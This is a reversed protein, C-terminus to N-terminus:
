KTKKFLQGVSQSIDKIARSLFSRTSEIDQSRKRSQKEDKEKQEAKAHAAARAERYEAGAKYKRLKERAREDKPHIRVVQKLADHKEFPEDIASFLLAWADANDPEHTVLDELIQRAQERNGAKMEREAQKVQAQYPM